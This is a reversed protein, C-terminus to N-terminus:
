QLHSVPRATMVGSLVYCMGPLSAVSMHWRPSIWTLMTWRGCCKSQLILAVLVMIILRGVMVQPHIQHLLVLNRPSPIYITWFSLTMVRVTQMIRVQICLVVSSVLRWPMSLSDCLQTITQVVTFIFLVLHTRLPIKIWAKPRLVTLVQGKWHIGSMSSLVMILLGGMRSPTLKKFAHKGKNLFIWSKIGMSAKTWHGIHSSNDSLPSRLTKGPAACQVTNFSDFLKDIDGVFVAMPLYPSLHPSFITTHFTFGLGLWMASGIQEPMDRWTDHLRDALLSRLM